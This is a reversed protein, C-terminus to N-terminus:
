QNTKSANQAPVLIYVEEGPKKRNYKLAEKGLNEPQSYYELDREYRSNEASLVSAEGNLETTKAVYDATQNRLRYIQFGIFVLVVVLFVAFVARM